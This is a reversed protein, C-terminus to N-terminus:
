FQSLTRRTGLKEWNFPNLVRRDFSKKTNLVDININKPEQITFRETPNDQSIASSLKKNEAEEGDNNDYVLFPALFVLLWFLPRPDYESLLRTGMLFLGAFIKVARERALLFNREWVAPQRSMEAIAAAAVARGENGGKIRGIRKETQSTLQQQQQITGTLRALLASFFLLCFKEEEKFGRTLKHWDDLEDWSLPFSSSFSSSLKRM